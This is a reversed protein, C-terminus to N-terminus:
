PTVSTGGANSPTDNQESPTEEENGGSGDNVQQGAGADTGSSPSAPMQVDYKKELEDMRREYEAIIEEARKDDSSNGFSTRVWQGSIFGIALAAVLIAVVLFTSITNTRKHTEVISTMKDSLIQNQDKLASMRAEYDKDKREDLEYYRRNAEDLMDKMESNQKKADALKEAVEEDKRRLADEHQRRLADIEAEMSQKKAVHEAALADMRQKYEEVTQAVKNDRALEDSLAKVRAVEDKRNNDLFDQMEKRLEVFRAEEADLRKRYEDTLVQMVDSIRYDLLKGAEDRRRQLLQRRQDQYGAEVRNYAAPELQAIQAAHQRGYMNDYQQRAAAVANAVYQERKKDYEEDLEARQKAIDEQVADLYEQRREELKRLRKGYTSQPDNIDLAHQIDECSRAMLNFYNERLRSINNAHMRRLELNADKAMRRLYGSLWQDDYDESFAPVPNDRMFQVDFPDISVELGLDDSYFRRAFAERVEEESIDEEYVPEASDEDAYEEDDYEPQAENDDEFESPDVDPEEPEAPAAPASHQTTDELDPIDNFDVEDEPEAPSVEYSIDDDDDGNFPVDEDALPEEPQEEYSVDDEADNYEATVDEYGASDTSVGTLANLELEGSSIQSAQLLSMEKDTIHVNGDGDVAAISYSAARLFGYEGMAELTDVTPIFLICDSELMAPTVYVQITDNKICELFQGKDPDTRSAKKDLGGIRDVSLLLGVPMKEGEMVTTFHPAEQFLALATEPVSEDILKSLESRKKGGAAKAPPSEASGDVPSANQFFMM